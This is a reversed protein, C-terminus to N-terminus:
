KKTGKWKRYGFYAAVIVVLAIGIELYSFGFLGGRSRAAAAASTTAGGSAGGNLRAADMPSYITIPINKSLNHQINDADKFDVMIPLNYQGPTLNQPVDVTVQFTAFDDVNLTGIFQDTAGIVPMASQPETTVYVSRIASNGNNSIQAVVKAGSTGGSIFSPQTTATVIVDPTAVVAVGVDEAYSGGNVMVSMPLNYYGAAISSGIGVTIIKTENEGPPISDFYILTSGIPTFQSTQNIDVIPSASSGGFNELTLAFQAESGVEVPNLSQMTVGFQGSSASVTVPGVYITQNVVNSLEDQYSVILPITSKGSPTSSSSSLIVSVNTSGGSPIAGVVQQTVGQILFTSSDPTTITVDNMVGGTNEIQLQVTVPDGAQISLPTVSITKVSLIEHQSIQIPISVPSNKLGTKSADSFYVVNIDINFFGSSVNAPVTFPITTTATAGTGIDGLSIQSYQSELPTKYEVIAGAATDTGSNTLSIELQAVTGPYITGPLTTHGTLQLAANNTSFGVSCMLALVLIGLWVNMKM